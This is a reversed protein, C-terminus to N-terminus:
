RVTQLAFTGERVYFTAEDGQNPGSWSRVFGVVRIVRGAPVTVQVSLGPIDVVGSSSITFTATRLAYGLVGRPVAWDAIKAATVAGDAIKDATVAQNAIAGTTVAGDAIAGTTVAGSALKAATVANNALKSATIASDGIKSNTVAGDALK